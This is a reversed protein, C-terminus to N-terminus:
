AAHSVLESVIPDPTVRAQQLAGDALHEARVLTRLVSATIDRGGGLNERLCGITTRPGAPIAWWGTLLTGLSRRFGSGAREGSRVFRVASPLEVTKFLLGVRWHFVVFRGGDKVADVLEGLTMREIGFVKMPTSGFDIGLTRVGTTDAAWLHLIRSCMGKGKTPCFNKDTRPRSLPPM